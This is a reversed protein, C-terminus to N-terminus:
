WSREEYFRTLLGTGPAPQGQAVRWLFQSSKKQKKEEDLFFLFALSNVALVCM